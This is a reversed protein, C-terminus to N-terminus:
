ALSELLQHMRLRGDGAAMLTRLYERTRSAAWGDGRCRPPLRGAFLEACVWGLSAADDIDYWVPLTALELGLSAAREATQRYVRETSWDIDHFLHRHPHKLGILYYGGDTAPGLVVRDGPASLKRMAEILLSTPLTPSDANILCAGEYGATVLDEIADPLSQALGVSRPPLLRVRQPLVDRLLAESGPPSYAAFCDTGLSVSAALLNAVVDGIFCVSLRAAEEPRLPPVLRTKVEGGRPAKVMVAFAYRGAHCSLRIGQLNKTPRERPM